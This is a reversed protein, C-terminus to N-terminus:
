RMGGFSGPGALRPMVRHHMDQFAPLCIRVRRVASAAKSAYLNMSWECLLCIVYSPPTLPSNRASGRQDDCHKQLYPSLSLVAKRLEEEAPGLKPAVASRRGFRENSWAHWGRRYAEGDGHCIRSFPWECVYTFISELFAVSSGM